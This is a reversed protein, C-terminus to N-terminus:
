LCTGSNSFPSRIASFARAPARTAIASFPPYTDVVLRTVLWFVASAFPFPLRLRGSSTAAATIWLSRSPSPLWATWLRRTCRTHQVVEATASVACRLRLPGSRFPAKAAALHYSVGCCLYHLATRKKEAALSNTPPLSLLYAM